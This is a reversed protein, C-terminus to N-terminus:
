NKDREWLRDVNGTSKGPANMAAVIGKAAKKTKIRDLDKHADEDAVRGILKASIDKTKKM